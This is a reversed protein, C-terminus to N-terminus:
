DCSHCSGLRLHDFFSCDLWKCAMACLRLPVPTTPLAGSYVKPPRRVSPTSVSYCQLRVLPMLVHVPQLWTPICARASGTTHPLWQRIRQSLSRPKMHLSRAQELGQEEEALEQSGKLGWSHMQSFHDSSSTQVLLLDRCM